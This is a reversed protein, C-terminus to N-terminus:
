KKTLEFELDEFDNLTLDTFDLYHNECCDQEHESCLVTGDEFIIGWHTVEEVKLKDM